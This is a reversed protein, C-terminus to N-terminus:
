IHKFINTNYSIIVVGMNNVFTFNSPSFFSFAPFKLFQAYFYEIEELPKVEIPPLNVGKCNLVYVLFMKSSGYLFFM